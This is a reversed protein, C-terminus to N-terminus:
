LGELNFIVPLHDSYRQDPRSYSDLLNKNSIKKVTKLSNLVFYHLMEKGIIVQDLVNWHIHEYDDRSWWYTGSLADADFFLKWSPNFFVQSNGQRVINREGKLAIDFDNTTHFGNASVIASDFPNVNLDGLILVRGSEWLNTTAEKFDIANRTAEALKNKDDFNKRSVLHLPFIIFDFGNVALNLVSYQKEHQLWKISSKYLSKAICRVKPATAISLPYEPEVFIRSHIKDLEEIYVSENEYSEFIFFIDLDREVVLEGVVPVINLKEDLDRKNRRSINWFGIQM